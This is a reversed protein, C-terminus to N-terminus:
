ATPQDLSKASSTIGIDSVVIKRKNHSDHRQAPTILKQGLGQPSQCGHIIWPITQPEHNVRGM